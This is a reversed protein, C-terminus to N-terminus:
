DPLDPPPKVALVSCPLEKLLHEATSGLLAQRLHTRGLMGLIVLDAKTQRAYATIARGQSALSEHLVCAANLGDLDGVFDDLQCQLLHQYQGHFDPVAELSPMKYHLRHWPGHFVHLFDVHYGAQTALKRALKVVERSTPSFDVCAVIKQFPGTHSSDTLLINVDAKRLVRLALTGVEPPHVNAGQAGLVILDADVAAARALVEALPVGISIEVHASAPLTTRELWLDLEHRTLTVAAQREQEISVHLAEALDSVALAEIVHLVHLTAANEAAIRAAQRLAVRSSESFDVGALVTKFENM